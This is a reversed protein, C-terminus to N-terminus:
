SPASSSRTIRPRRTSPPARRPSRDEQPLGRAQRLPRARQGDDERLRAELGPLEPDHRSSRPGGEADPERAHRGQSARDVKQLISIGTPRTNGNRGPSSLSRIPSAARATPCAARIASSMAPRSRRSGTGTSVRRTSPTASRDERGGGPLYGVLPKDLDLVGQDVLKM